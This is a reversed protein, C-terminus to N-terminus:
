GVAALVPLDLRDRLIGVLALEIERMTPRMRPDKAMARVIMRELEPPVDSRLLSPREAHQGCHAFMLQPLTGHFPYEGTVLEHLLCGLGYVDSERVPKGHWQEPAMYAPTGVITSTSHPQDVHRAAGYDIVKICPWGALMREDLVFVNDVKVDGHVHGTEHLANLAAAIQAGIALVAELAILGRDALQGLNEGDLIEMVLYPLGTATRRAAHIQLLGAHSVSQAIAHEAILRAVLDPQNTHIPDLLKIAVREDGRVALYITATGGRALPAIVDYDVLTDTATPFPITDSHMRWGRAAPTGRWTRSRVLVARM